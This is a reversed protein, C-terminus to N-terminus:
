CLNNLLKKQETKGPLCNMSALSTLVVLCSEEEEEMERESRESEWDWRM